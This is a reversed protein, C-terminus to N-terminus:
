ADIRINKQFTKGQDDTGSIQWQVNELLIEYPKQQVSKAKNIERVWDQILSNKTRKNRLVTEAERRIRAKSVEMYTPDGLSSLAYSYEKGKLETWPATYFGLGKLDVKGSPSQLILSSQYRQKVTVNKVGYFIMKSQPLKGSQLLYSLSNQQQPNQPKLEKAGLGSWVIKVGDFNISFGSAIDTKAAVPEAVAAKVTDPQVPTAPNSEQLSTAPKLELDTVLNVLYQSDTETVITSSDGLVIPGRDSSSSLDKCSALSGLILISLILTAKM